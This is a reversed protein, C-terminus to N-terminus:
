ATIGAARLEAERAAFGYEALIASTHQGLAPAPGGLAGPTGRFQAPPRPERVRGAAPHDREVFVESAVVQPDLHLEDLRRVVGHPVDQADLRAEFEDRKFRAANRRLTAIAEMWRSYNGMRSATTALQPDLALEPADLARCAAQFEADSFPTFTGFGDALRTLAFGSGLGPQAAIGDGLLIRDAAADLFLFAIATDLMSLEVQQGGRGRAAALLAACVAQAGAWATLKDTLLQRVFGPEGTQPDTQSDAVGSYTQIVNDYVRKHAYPGSRGFGSLSLYVLNPNLERLSEWGLGMREVVGPRLNQILADSRRVLERLVDKGREDSLNLAISRKGRNVVHFLGSMGGRSSGVHRMLDGTGPPEVKIVEAGQDALIGAALPAAILAGLEIV